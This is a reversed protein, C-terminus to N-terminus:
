KGARMRNYLLAVIGVLLAIAAVGGPGDFEPVAAVESGGGSCDGLGFLCLAFAQHATILSMLLATASVKIIKRLMLIM